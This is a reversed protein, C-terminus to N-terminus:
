KVFKIALLGGISASLAAVLLNFVFKDPIIYSSIFVAIGVFIGTFLARKGNM